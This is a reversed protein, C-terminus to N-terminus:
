AGKAARVAAVFAQVKAPDKVGPSVEVGSAVDVAYPEMAAVADTVNGPHLGGALVLNPAGRWAEAAQWDFAEGSGPNVGDLLVADQPRGAWADPTLGPEFRIARIVKVSHQLERALDDPENGHLQVADLRAAEVAALIEPMGADVFVGVRQVFPGLASTVAEAQAHSVRRKSTAAFIIGIADVGARECMRADEPRTLGCIKIRTTGLRSM